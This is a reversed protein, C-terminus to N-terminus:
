ARSLWLTNIVNHLKQLAKVETVELVLADIWDCAENWSPLKNAAQRM